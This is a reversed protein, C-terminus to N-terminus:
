VYRKAERLMSLTLEVPPSQLQQQVNQLELALSNWFSIEQLDALADFTTTDDNADDDIMPFTTSQPLLTLKRIQQIWNSVGSQLTNLFDDDQLLHQLGLANWDVNAKTNNSDAVHSSAAASVIQSDVSLTVTPLKASRQSQGIAVNLQRIKEQLVTQDKLAPLFLNRSYLQLAQLLAAQSNVAVATASTSPTTADQHDEDQKSEGADVEELLTPQLTVCQLPQKTTATTTTAEGGETTGAAAAAAAAGIPGGMFAVAALYKEPLVDSVKATAATAATATAAMVDDDQNGELYVFLCSSSSSTNMIVIEVSDRNPATGLHVECAMSYTFTHTSFYLMDILQQLIKCVVCYYLIVVSSPTMTQQIDHTMYENM